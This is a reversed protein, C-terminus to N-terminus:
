YWHNFFNLKNVLPLFLVAVWQYPGSLEILAATIMNYELPVFGGTYLSTLIAFKLRKRFWQNQRWKSPFLYWLTVHITINSQTFMLYGIMPVPNAYNFVYNWVIYIIACTISGTLAVMTYLRRFHRNTKILKINTYLSCRYLCSLSYLPGLVFFMLLIGEYWYQSKEVVNHAPFLTYISTSLITGMIGIMISVVPKWKQYELPDNCLVSEFTEMREQSQLTHSEREAQLAKSVADNNCDGSGISQDDPTLENVPTITHVRTMASTFIM